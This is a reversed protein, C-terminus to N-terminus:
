IASTQNLLVHLRTLTIGCLLLRLWALGTPAEMGEDLTFLEYLREDTPSKIPGRLYM